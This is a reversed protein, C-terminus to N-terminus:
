NRSNRHRSATSKNRARAQREQYKIKNRVISDIRSSRVVYLQPDDIVFPTSWSHGDNRNVVNFFFTDFTEARYSYPFQSTLYDLESLDEVGKKAYFHVQGDGTFSMGFTYWGYEPMEMVKFDHGLKNGRVKLFASSESNNRDKGNRFHIWMGPWYPEIETSTVMRTRKQRRFRNGTTYSQERAKTVHTRTTGRIGFHPGSRPEWQEWPPLYVRVVFNPVESVPITGNVRRAIDVVLDDQEVKRNIYGPVGSKLTRVLLARESGPIGGEPTAVVKMHDPQGREPGEFWRGNTSRGTPGRLQEDNERSSKPHNHIFSWNGTEFDDGVYEIWQGTGPVVPAAAYASTSCAFALATVLCIVSGNTSRKM